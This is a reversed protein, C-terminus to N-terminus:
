PISHSDQGTAIKYLALTAYNINQIKFNSTAGFNFTNFDSTPVQSLANSQFYVLQITSPYTNRLLTYSTTAGGSLNFVIGSSTGGTFISDTVTISSNSINAVQIAVLQSPFTSTGMTVNLNNANVIVSGSLIALSKRRLDTMTMGSVTVTQNLSTTIADRVSEMLGGTINVTPADNDATGIGSDLNKAHFNILNISNFVPAVNTSHAGFGSGGLLGETYPSPGHAYCNTLTAGGILTGPTGYLQYMGSGGNYAENNILVSNEIVLHGGSFLFQHGSGPGEAYSNLIVASEGLQFGYGLNGRKGSLHNLTIYNRLLGGTGSIGGFPRANYEYLFGNTIVNSSDTAHIYITIPSSTTSSWLFAGPTSDCLGTSAVQTLQVGNEWVMPYVLPTFELLKSTIQYCNTTGGVLTFSANLLSDSADFTPRSTGVEFAQVTMFNRPLLIEERWYGDYRFNWVPRPNAGDILELHAITAYPLGPPNLDSGGVSDVYYNITPIVQFLQQALCLDLFSLLLLIKSIM